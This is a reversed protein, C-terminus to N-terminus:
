GFSPEKKETVRLESLLSAKRAEGSVKERRSHIIIEAADPFREILNEFVERKTEGLASGLLQGQDDYAHGM